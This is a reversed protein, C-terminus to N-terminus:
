KGQSLLSRMKEELKVDHPQKKNLWSELSKRDEIKLSSSSSTPKSRIFADETGIVYFMHYTNRCIKYQM